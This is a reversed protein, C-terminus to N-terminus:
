FSLLRKWLSKREEQYKPYNLLMEKTYLYEERKYSALELHDRLVIAGTPCAEECYGCYICRLLNIRYDKSYREGRSVPSEPDNEAAEVHICSVPCNAACLSCGICREKGDDYRRLIHRGRTSPPLKRQTEPYQITDLGKFLHTFVLFLGGLLAQTGETARALRDTIASFDRKM